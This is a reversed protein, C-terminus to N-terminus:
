TLGTMMPPHGNFIHRVVAKKSQKIEIGVNAGFGIAKHGFPSGLVVEEFKRDISVANKFNNYRRMEELVKLSSVPRFDAEQFIAAMIPKINLFASVIKEKIIEESKDEGCIFFVIDLKNGASNALNPYSTIYLELSLAEDLQSISQIFSERSNQLINPNMKNLASINNNQVRSNAVILEGQLISELKLAAFGQVKNKTKQIMMAPFFKM